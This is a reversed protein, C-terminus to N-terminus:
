GCVALWKGARIARKCTSSSGASNGRRRQYTELLPKGPPRQWCGGDRRSDQTTGEVERRGADGALLCADVSVHGAWDGSLAEMWMRAMPLVM